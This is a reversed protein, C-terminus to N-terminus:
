QLASGQLIVERLPFIVRQLVFFIVQRMKVIYIVFGRNISAKLIKILLQRKRDRKIHNRNLAEHGRIIRPTLILEM